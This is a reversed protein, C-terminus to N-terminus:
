EPNSTGYWHSTLIFYDDVDVLGSGDIDAAPDDQYWSAALHFYDFVDVLGSGDLDGGPLWFAATAQGNNFVVPQRRRLTWATKASLHTMAVPLDSITFPAVGGSFDLTLDVTKLKNTADDTAIFTVTRSGAGDHAPGVFFELEVTGSVQVWQRQVTVQFSGRATNGSGDGATCHVTTVGIPFVSGSEPACAVSVSGACLDFATAAFIVVTGPLSTQPTVIDTPLNLIPPTADVVTLTVVSSTVSAFPNSVVVEYSTSNALTAPNFNLAASTAGIIPAGNTRWQYSLPTAGIATVSFGAPTGCEVTGDVPQATIELPLPNAFISMQDYRITGGTTYGSATGVYNSLGAGTATYEFETVIRFAFSANDAVGPIASLDVTEYLFTGGVSATIVSGDVYDTGNTTFQVRLYKSATDSHRQEWALVINTYGLTSVAFQVGKSKNGATAAPYGATSWASNDSSPAPDSTTGQVFAITTPPGVLSATGSGISPITSGTSVTADPTVSNFNWQALKYSSAGVVTLAVPTSTLTGSYNSVIVWYNGVDAAGVNSRTMTSNTAGTIDVGGLQWQYTVSTGAATASFFANDGASNTRSSPNKTIALDIVTLTAVTSTVSSNSNSVVVSYNGANGPGVNTITLTATVAGTLNGGDSLIAGGLLWQYGLPANGAAAVTFTATTGIINTRSVPQTTIVPDVVTLTAVTSTISGFLNTVVVAYSGAEAALVNTITLTATAAGSVKGGDTLPSVGKLWLYSLPGTGSGTVTFTATTTADNTRSSPATVGPAEGVNLSISASGSRSQADTITVPLSKLGPGASVTAPYTFLNGGSDTFSQSASGGIATLDATVALGSSVPNAGPTVQVRLTTNQGVVVNAPDALGSGSPNTPTAVVTILGSDTITLAGSAAGITVAGTLNATFVASKLDVSPVLDGVAVSESIITLIWSDAAVNDVFNSLADRRIAYATLTQAPALNTAPVVIGTGDAATEVIVQTPTGAQVTILGSDIPTLGSAAAHINAAGVLHGTFVASKNDGAPVLDGAVVGLTNNLLSWTANSNAIFGGGSDRAIAYVTISNGSTLNQAFVVSGRGDAATEVRVQTAPQSCLSATTAINRPAPAATTFDTANVDTDTCGANGRQASTTNSPAPTAGTGEYCSATSGFGVFDVIAGGSPCSGSLATGNSVLAVKGATASLALTGTADPTPLAAGVTGGSAEQVLYYGGPPISGTLLTLSWSNGTASAYQVSWGAVSVTTNGRNHLEIFDNKYIAGGNGGGGYVQSIVITSSGAAVANGAALLIAM